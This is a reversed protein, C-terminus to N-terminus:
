IKNILFDREQKILEEFSNNTTKTINTIYSAVFLVIALLGGLILIVEASSQGKDDIKRYM